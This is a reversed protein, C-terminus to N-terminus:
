KVLEFSYAFVYPNREWTGKGSLADILDAFADKEFDSSCISDGKMFYYTLTGDDNYFPRIGEKLCDDDSIDQLREVKIDTIRIQHPMLEARVYMKNTCGPHDEEVLKCIDDEAKTNVYEEGMIRSYSQAVAVIEGVKYQAYRDIIVSERLDWDFATDLYEVDYDELKIVRRTMTKHGDIVTQTLGYKDSFIIKKM